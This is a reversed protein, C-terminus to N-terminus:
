QLTVLVLIEGQGGALPELARGIITGPRHIPVGNVEVPTSRMVHGPMDSSVLLDGAAIAGASADAMVKVRGSHAVMVKNAGPEGLLVGPQKSVVGAIRTDYAASSPLVGDRESPDIVVVTGPRLGAPAKVWEAVDQYQAQINNGTVTGNFQANGIVHLAQAPTNTGIGVRGNGKISLRVLAGGQTRDQFEFTSGNGDSGLRVLTKLVNNERHQLDSQGATGADFTFTPNAVYNRFLVRAGEIHLKDTPSTTGIGLSGPIGLSGNGRILFRTNAGSTRDQIEFTSGNADTGMRVLTKLVNNERHQFDSQGATGADFAFTPNATLNRFLIRAGEVHLRDTPTNTGIGVNTGTDHILTSVNGAFVLSVGGVLLLLTTVASARKLGRIRKVVAKAVAM